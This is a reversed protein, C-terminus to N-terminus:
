VPVVVRAPYGFCHVVHGDDLQHEFEVPEEGAWVMNTPQAFFIGNQAAVVVLDPEGQREVIEGVVFRPGRTVAHRRPHHRM